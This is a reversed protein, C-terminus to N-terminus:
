SVSPPQNMYKDWKDLVSDWLLYWDNKNINM